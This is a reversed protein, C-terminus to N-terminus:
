PPTPRTSRRAAARRRLVSPGVEPVATAARPPGNRRRAKGCPDDRVPAVGERRGQFPAPFPLAQRAAGPPSVPPNSGAVVRGGRATPASTSSRRRPSVAVSSGGYPALVNEPHGRFLVVPFPGASFSSFRPATTKWDQLPDRYSGAPRAFVASPLSSLRPVPAGWARLAVANSRGSFSRLQRSCARVPVATRQPGPTASSSDASCATWPWPSSARPTVPLSAPSVEPLLHRRSAM